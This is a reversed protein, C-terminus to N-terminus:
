SSKRLGFLELPRTLRWENSPVKIGGNLVLPVKVTTQRVQLDPQRRDLRGGRPHFKRMTLTSTIPNNSWNLVSADKAATM